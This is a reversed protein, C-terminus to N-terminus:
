ALWLFLLVLWVRGCTLHHARCLFLLVVESRKAASTTTVLQHLEEDSVGPLEANEHVLNM